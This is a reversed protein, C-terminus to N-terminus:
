EGFEDPPAFKSLATRNRAEELSANLFANARYDAMVM